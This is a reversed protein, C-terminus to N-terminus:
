RSFWADLDERLPQVIKDYVASQFETDDMDESGPGPWFLCNRVVEAYNAGCHGQVINLLRSATALNTTSPNQRDDEPLRLKDIPQLCALETLALGLPFLLQSQIVPDSSPQARPSFPIKCTLYLLKFLKETASGTSSTNNALVIDKTDWQQDMWSGQLQLVSTALIAAVTLRNKWIYLSDSTVQSLPTRALDSALADHLTEAQVTRSLDQTVYLEYFHSNDNIDKISGLCEYSSSLSGTPGCNLLQSCIDTLEASVIESPYQKTRPMAELPASMVAKKLDKHASKGSRLIGKRIAKQTPLPNPSSVHSADPPVYATAATVTHMQFERMLWQAHTQSSGNHDQSWLILAFKSSGATLAGKEDGLWLSLLHSHSQSCQWRHTSCLASHLSRTYKRLGRFFTLDSRYARRGGVASERSQSDAVLTRLRRNYDTIRQLTEEYDTRWLV